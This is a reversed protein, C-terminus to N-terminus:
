SCLMRCLLRLVSSALQFLICDNAVGSVSLLEGAPLTFNAAGSGIVWKSVDVAVDAAANTLKLYRQTSGDAKDYYDVYVNVDGSQSAPLLPHQGGPGYTRLLQKTRIPIYETVLQQYGRAIDGRQWKTKDLAAVDKIQGYTADIIQM